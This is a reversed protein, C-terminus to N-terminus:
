LTVRQGCLAKRTLDTQLDTVAAKATKFFALQQYISVPQTLISPDEPHTQLTPDLYPKEPATKFGGFKEATRTLLAQEQQTFQTSEDSSTDMKMEEVQHDRATRLAEVFQQYPQSGDIKAVEAELQEFYEESYGAFFISGVVFLSVSGAPAATILLYQASRELVLTLPRLLEASAPVLWALHSYAQNEQPLKASLIKICEDIQDLLDRIEQFLNSEKADEIQALPQSTTRAAEQNLQKLGERTLPKRLM